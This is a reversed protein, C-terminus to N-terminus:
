PHLRGQGQEPRDLGAARAIAALVSEPTVSGDMALEFRGHITAAAKGALQQYVIIEALAAFRGSAPTPRRRPPPGHQEILSALVQDREALLATIDAVTPGAM